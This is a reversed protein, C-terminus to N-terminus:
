RVYKGGILLRDIIWFMFKGLCSEMVAKKLEDIAQAIKEIEPDKERKKFGLTIKIM